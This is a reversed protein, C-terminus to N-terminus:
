AAVRVGPCIDYTASQVSGSAYSTTPSWAPQKMREAYDLAGEDVTWYLFEASGFWVELDKHYLDYDYRCNPPPACNNCRDPYKPAPAAALLPQVALIYLLPALTRQM